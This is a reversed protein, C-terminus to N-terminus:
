ENEKKGRVAGKGDGTLVKSCTLQLDNTGNIPGLDKPLL